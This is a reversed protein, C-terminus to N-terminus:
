TKAKQLKKEYDAVARYTSDKAQVSFEELLKRQSRSIKAPIEVTVRVYQDGRGSRNLRPIGKGRFSFVQGSQTGAPIRLEIPGELTLVRVTGGLVATEMRIPVDCLVNDGDRVFLPHDKVEIQVFLDGTDGGHLGSDGEGKLRLRNGTSVGSPVRVNLTREATTRGEGKCRRCPNEIIRGRGGCQPCTRSMTFFAQQYRVEGRGSCVKCEVPSHGPEVGDGLCADCEVQRPYRISKEVGFVAEEFTLKLRYRLDDGRLGRERPGSRGMGFFDSFLDSFVDSFSSAFDRGNAFGGLGALGSFGYQDYLSRKEPDSLVSYAESLEKFKEEASKDGPNRDPHCQIALRRYAKKIEEGECGRSVSLVEYYDRKASM